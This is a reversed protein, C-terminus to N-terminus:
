NKVFLFIILYFVISLVFIFLVLFLKFLNLTKNISENDQFFQQQIFNVSVACLVLCDDAWGGVPITDPIMDFPSVFYLFAILLWFWSFFKKNRRQKLLNSETVNLNNASM